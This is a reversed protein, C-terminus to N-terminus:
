LGIAKASCVTGAEAGGDLVNNLKISKGPQLTKGLSAVGDVGQVKWQFQTGAPLAVVGANAIRLDDPFESPTGSVVCRLVAGFKVKANLKVGKGPAANGQGLGLDIVEIQPDLSFRDVLESNLGIQQEPQPNFIDEFDPPDNDPMADHFIDGSSDNGSDSGGVGPLHFGGASALSTSILIAALAISTTKIINM